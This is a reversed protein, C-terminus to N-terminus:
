LAAAELIESITELANGGAPQERLYSNKKGAAAAGATLLKAGAPDAEAAARGGVLDLILV